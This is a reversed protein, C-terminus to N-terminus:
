DSDVIIADGVLRIRNLELKESVIEDLFQVRLQRARDHPAASLAAVAKARESRYRAVFEQAEALTPPRASVLKKIISYLMWAALLGVIATVAWAGWRVPTDALQEYTRSYDPGGGSSYYSCTDGPSMPRGDCLPGSSPRESFSRGWSFAIVGGAVVVVVIAIVTSALKSKVPEPWRPWKGVEVLTDTKMSM